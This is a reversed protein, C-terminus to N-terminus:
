GRYGSITFVNWLIVLIYEYQGFMEVLAMSPTFGMM